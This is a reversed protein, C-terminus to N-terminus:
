QNPIVYSIDSINIQLNNNKHITSYTTIGILLLLLIINVLVAFNAYKNPVIKKFNDKGVINLWISFLVALFMTLLVSNFGFFFVSIFTLLIFVTLTKTIKSLTWNTFKEYWKTKIQLIPKNKNQEPVIYGPIWLLGFGLPLTCIIKWSSVGMARCRRYKAYLNSIFVGGLYLYFLIMFVIIFMATINLNVGIFLLKNANSAIILGSVFFAVSILFIQANNLAVFSKRDLNESPMKKLMIYASLAFVIALLILKIGNGADAGNFFLNSLLFYLLGMGIIMFFTIISFRLPAWLLWNILTDPKKGTM